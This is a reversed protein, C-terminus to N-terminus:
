LKEKPSGVEMKMGDKGYVVSEVLSLFLGLFVKKDIDIESVAQKEWTSTLHCEHVFMTYIQVFRM